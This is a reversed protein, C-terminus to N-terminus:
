RDDRTPSLIRDLRDEIAAKRRIHELTPPHLSGPRVAQGQLADMLQRAQRQVQCLGADDGSPGTNRGCRLDPRAEDIRRQVALLELLYIEREEYMAQTNSLLPDGRVEVTQTFTAGRAELTVSYTGPSVWPGNTGIPRALESDDHRIWVRPRDSSGHRLDWNVRHVGVESPVTLEQVVRGSSNTIRLTAAGTGPGLVYTILAGDVPNTGHFEAQGRYSTDKRYNFITARQISFVHVSASAVAATWEALPTTDDFIWISQGHTGIVLDKERPHLVLDDIHTTPLHSLKAWDAGATTSVFLGHETGVFLLNPNDPHEVLSNVSGSPLGAALSTWTEGFDTTRFVYPEFDGDRHADFAVYAVASGSRSAVIRSVYTGDPVGPVNASRETWTLGGDRSVQLNGDDTGVWLVQPDLPSEALVVIEGYSSTGDNRSIDIETGRVGMLEFEGRDQRRSLDETRTWSSGRDRSIFLRNGGLYVVSPDHQSVLSPSVWDWRYRPEGDPARPRIDLMDGTEPDLRYYGGGNSNAYVYRHNTPDVQQYMGDGFGTQQWDDNLIGIWRRTESPGMWSHNDQMGGYVYYPDRNDVGIAYFQGIPLNNIKRFNVGRDYTEWLGADGALYLHNPDGPDIWLAHHDAHVGVDYTPAQAIQSFSRGGNESKYASTGLVYVREANSPDIFIESYYMPRPDLANVRQWSDGGDESRYTGQEAGSAHQILASLVRPDSQSIALGIRGKDGAPIGNTLEHWTDGGDMSRHIGSGPGGGNFGWTRRLRQYTAAYLIEPNQPDMVLDVAGTFEDVYLVREWTRGGDRTRFVGREENGRWLNGLAAVYVIDPDTPHILVKGIHRTEVLGVHRFTEGGDDSRYVGNGWSSSQRNNQEGTGAYLVSPDSPAIAVDGFTSVAQDSFVNRWTQGRNTTKWLGGSATALFITSPDNPLAEVDHVRGGAVAPGILRPRFAALQTETIPVTGGPAAAQAVSAVPAVLLGVMALLGRSRLPVAFELLGSM